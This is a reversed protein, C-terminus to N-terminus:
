FDTVLGHHWFRDILNSMGGAWTLALGLFSLRTLNSNNVLYALLLSLGLSVRLTLIGGRAAEPLSAGFSLFAGPNEVLTFEVFGGPITASGFQPRHTRARHKTAQDCGAPSGPVLFVAALRGARSLLM